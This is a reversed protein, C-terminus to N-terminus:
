TVGVDTRGTMFWKGATELTIRSEPGYPGLVGCVSNSSPVCGQHRTRVYTNIGRTKGQRECGAAAAVRIRERLGPASNLSMAPLASVMSHSTSFAGVINGGSEVVCQNGRTETGM